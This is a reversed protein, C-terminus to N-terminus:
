VKSIRLGMASEPEFNDLVYIGGFYANDEEVDGSNFWELPGGQRFGKVWREDTRYSPVKETEYFDVLEQRNASAKVATLNEINSARMDNLMLVYGTM